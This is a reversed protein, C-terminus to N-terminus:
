TNPQTKPPAGFKKKFINRIKNKQQMFAISLEMEDYLRNHKEQTADNKAKVWGTLIRISVDYYDPFNRLEYVTAIQRDLKIPEGPTDSQSLDKILRHYKEFQKDKFEKHKESIYKFLKFIRYIFWFLGTAISILVTLAGYNTNLFNIIWNFM